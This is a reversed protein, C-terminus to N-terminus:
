AFLRPLTALRRALPQTLSALVCALAGTLETFFPTLRAAFPLLAPAAFTVVADVEAQQAVVVQGGARRRMFRDDHETAVRRDVTLGVVVDDHNAPSVSTFTAGSAAPKWDGAILNQYTKTM